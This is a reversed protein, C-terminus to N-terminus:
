ARRRRLALGGFGAFGGALALISSPEPVPVPIPLLTAGDDFFYERGRSDVAGIQWGWVWQTTVPSSTYVQFVASQGPQLMSQVDSIWSFRGGAFPPAQNYSWGVPEDHNILLDTPFPLDYFGRIQDTTLTNTVTYIYRVTGNDILVQSSILPTQACAVGALIFLLMTTCLMDLARKTM